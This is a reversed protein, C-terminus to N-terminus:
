QPLLCWVLIYPYISYSYTYISYLCTQLPPCTGTPGTRIYLLLYQVLLCQILLGKSPYTNYSYTSYPFSSYSGIPVIHIPVTRSHVLLYQVHSTISYSYTSCSDTPYLITSYSYTRTYVSLDSVM